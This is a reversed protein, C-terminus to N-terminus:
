GKPAWAAPLGLALVRGAVLRGASGVQPRPGPRGPRCRGHAGKFPAHSGPRRPRLQAALGQAPGLRSPWLTSPVFPRPSVRLAPWSAAGGPHLGLVGCVAGLVCAPRAVQPASSSTRRGSAGSDVGGPGANWFLRDLGVKRCQLSTPERSVRGRGGGGNQGYGGSLAVASHWRPSLLPPFTAGARPDRGRPTGPFDRLVALCPAVCAPADPVPAEPRGRPEAPNSRPPTQLSPPLGQAGWSTCGPPSCASPHLRDEGLRDEPSCRLRQDPPGESSSACVSGWCGM